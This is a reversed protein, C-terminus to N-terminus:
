GGGHRNEWDKVLVVGLVRDPVVAVNPFDVGVWICAVWGGGLLM